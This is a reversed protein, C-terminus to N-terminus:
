GRRRRQSALLGLGVLLMAGAGALAGGRPVAGVTCGGTATGVSSSGGDPLECLVCPYQTTTLGGDGDPHASSCTTAVCTGPQNAASGANSCATGAGGSCLDPPAVDALAGSSWATVLAIAVASFASRLTLVPVDDGISGRAAVIPTYARRRDLM